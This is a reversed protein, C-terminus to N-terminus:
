EALRRFCGPDHLNKLGSAPSLFQMGTRILFVIKLLTSLKSGM